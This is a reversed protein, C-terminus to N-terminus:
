MPIWDGEDSEADCISATMEMLDDEGLKGYPAVARMEAAQRWAEGVALKCVNCSVYPM